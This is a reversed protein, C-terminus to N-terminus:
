RTTDRPPAPPMCCPSEVVAEVRQLPEHAPHVVLSRAEGATPARRHVDSQGPSNRAAPVPRVRRWAGPPPPAPPIRGRGRRTSRPRGPTPLAAVAREPFEGQAQPHRRTATRSLESPVDSASSPRSGFSSAVSGADPNARGRHLSGRLSGQTRAKNVSGNPRLAPHSRVGSLRSSAHRQDDPHSPPLPTRGPSTARREESRTCGARTPLNPTTPRPQSHDSGSVVPGGPM